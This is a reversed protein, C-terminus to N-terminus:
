ATHALFRKYALWGRLLFGLCLAICTPALREDPLLADLPDSWNRGVGLPDIHSVPAAIDEAEPLVTLLQSIVIHGSDGLIAVHEDFFLVFTFVRRCFVQFSECPTQRGFTHFRQFPDQDSGDRDVGYLICPLPDRPVFPSPKDFIEM